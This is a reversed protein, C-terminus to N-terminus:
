VDMYILLVPAHSAMCVYGRKSVVVLSEYSSVVDRYM